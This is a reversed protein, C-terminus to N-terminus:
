LHLGAKVSADSGTSERPGVARPPLTVVTAPKAQMRRLVEERPGKHRIRGGELVAVQDVHEILTSRHTVVVVTVKGRLDRIVDALAQEGAGDLNANPEDMVLLRVDGYLARALAIRQRQGPSLFRAGEDIETDYGGPLSLILDHVRARKAAEVVREPDVQGLRAINEAITGAFLDV